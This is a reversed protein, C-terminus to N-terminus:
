GGATTDARFLSLAGSVATASGALQFGSQVAGVGYGGAGASQLVAFVSHAAVNGIASHVGAAASGAIVGEAGFGAATLTPAAVIGPAAIIVLGVGVAGCAAAMGPSVKCAQYTQETTELTLEKTKCALNVLGDPVEAESIARQTATLGAVVADSGTSM